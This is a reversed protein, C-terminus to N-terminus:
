PIWLIIVRPTSNRLPLGEMLTPMFAHTLASQTRCIDGSRNNEWGIVFRIQFRHLNVGFKGQEPHVGDVILVASRRDEGKANEYVCTYTGIDDVTVSFIKLNGDDGEGDDILIRKSSQITKSNKLWTVQPTPSGIGRCFFSVNTGSLVSIDEPARIITPPGLISYGTGIFVIAVLM